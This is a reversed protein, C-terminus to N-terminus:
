NWTEAVLPSKFNLRENEPPLKLLGLDVELSGVVVVPELSAVQDDGVGVFAFM